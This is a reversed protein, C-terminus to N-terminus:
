PKTPTTTMAQTSNMGRPMTESSTREPKTAAPRPANRRMAVLTRCRTNWRLGTGYQALDELVHFQLQDFIRQKAAIAVLLLGRALQANGSRMQVFPQRSTSPGTQNSTPYELIVLKCGPLSM